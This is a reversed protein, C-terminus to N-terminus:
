QNFIFALTRFGGLFTPNTPYQPTTCLRYRAYICMYLIHMQSVKCLFKTFGVGGWYGVVVGGEELSETDKVRFGMEWRIVNREVGGEGNVKQVKSKM